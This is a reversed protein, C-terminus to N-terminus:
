LTLESVRVSMRVIWRPWLTEPERMYFPETIIEGPGVYITKTNLTVTTVSARHVLGALAHAVDAGDEPTAGYCWAAVIPNIVPLDLNRMGGEPILLVTKAPQWGAPLEVAHLAVGAPWGSRSYLWTTIAALSDTTAM